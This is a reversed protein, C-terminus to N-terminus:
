ARIQSCRDALAAIAEGFPGPAIRGALAFRAAIGSDPILPAALRSEGGRNVVLIPEPGARTLSAWVAHVLAPETAPAAVLVVHDVVAAPAEGHPIDLVLPARERLAASATVLELPDLLCLRGVARPADPSLERALRAAAGTALPRSRRSPPATVAAAGTEDRAALEAAIARSLTTVGCGRALGMVAVVPRVRPPPPTPPAEAPAFLFAEACALASSLLSRRRRLSGAATM